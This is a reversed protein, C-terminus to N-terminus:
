VTYEVPVCVSNFCQYCYNRYYFVKSYQKTLVDYCRYFAKISIAFLKKPLKRVFMIKGNTSLYKKLASVSKKSINLLEALTADSFSINDNLTMEGTFHNRLKILRKVEKLSLKATPSNLLRLDSKQNIIFKQQRAKLEIIKAYLIQKIETISKNKINRITCLHKDKPKCAYKKRLEAQSIFIINDCHMRVLRKRQLIELYKKCANFSTGTKKALSRISYNYFCGNAFTTKAKYYFALANMWDEAIAEIIINEHTQIFFVKQNPPCSRGM